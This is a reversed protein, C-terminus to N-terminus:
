RRVGQFAIFGTMIGLAARIGYTATSGLQNLLDLILTEFSFKDPILMVLFFMPFGVIANGVEAYDNPKLLKSFTWAGFLCVPVGVIYSHPALWNGAMFIVLGAWWPLDLLYRIPRM